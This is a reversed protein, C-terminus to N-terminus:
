DNVKHLHLDTQPYPITIGNEDFAQKVRELLDSRLSWYDGSAVWPRVFLNVSSDALELVGLSAEPEDLVREDSRLIEEILSKAQKLDDDYGIGFVLDLRRTERASFNTITGSYIAGNPVIVERNDPTKLTTSFISIEEVSGATGAADIYDGTRFPRFVILMVGAAFNALSDKLALGVALGAAGILAILSTTDVGLQNLAAVIVLLLLLGSLIASLFRRLMDDMNARQMMRDALKILLKIVWRGVVFILLALAINIAWQAILGTGTETM